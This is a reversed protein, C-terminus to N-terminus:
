PPKGGVPMDAQKLAVQVALFPIQVSAGGGAGALVQYGFWMGTSSDVDLTSIM